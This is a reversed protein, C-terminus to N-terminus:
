CTAFALLLRFHSSLSECQSLGNDTPSVSYVPLKVSNRLKHCLGHATPPKLATRPHDPQLARKFDAASGSHGSIQKGPNPDTLRVPQNGTGVTKGEAIYPMLNQPSGRQPPIYPAKFFHADSATIPWADLASM